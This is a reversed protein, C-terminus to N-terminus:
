KSVMRVKVMGKDFWMEKLVGNGNWVERL